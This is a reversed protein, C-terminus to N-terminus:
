KRMLKQVAAAKHEPALHAYRLTMKLDSHGLLERVTNLDVGAMVLRSAFHHRMDHWRFNNIEADKLVKGWATKIEVIPNGDVGPFVLEEASQERWAKLTFLAEDNLPIHRTRGSKATEDHVTLIANELDVAGWRLNLLEGRRLGTNISLLVMPKLHDVFEKGRMDPMLEYNRSERWANASERGARDREERADLTKRLRDEEDDSLWRAKGSPEQLMKISALPHELVIGWELARSFLGRLVTINRNTTSASMGAKMREARWKEISWANIETLPTDMFSSFSSKLRISLMKGTKTNAKLWDTYQDDIFSGLTLKTKRKGHHCPLIQWPLVPM